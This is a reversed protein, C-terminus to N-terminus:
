MLNCLHPKLYGVNPLFATVLLTTLVVQLSQSVDPLGHDYIHELKILDLPKLTHQLIIQLFHFGDTYTLVVVQGLHGSFTCLVHGGHGQNSPM